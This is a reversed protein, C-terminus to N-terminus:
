IRINLPKTALPQAARIRGAITMVTGALGALAQFATVADRGLQAILEAPMSIGMTAFLAPAVTSAATLLAGWITLSNGWWKADDAPPQSSPVSAQPPSAPLQPQDLDSAMAPEKISPSVPTPNQPEIVLRLAAALTADTRALWGRGFRWFHSLSRYRARRLDAYRPLVIAPSQATASALTIPGVEGDVTVSLASQLLKAAARLGMNVATDFHFLAIAPPLENCRAPRWYRELYIRRVLTDPIRKLEAKLDGVTAATVERGTERAFEGITIGKNTAGGPDFPDDTWGGEHRLVLALATEFGSDPVPAVPTPKSAIQRDPAQETEVAPWRLAILRGRDYAEVTVANSQNGGLLIITAPTIALLIGVHGLAPDSGRSLVAIAGCRPPECPRGWRSYSRAMLSGTGAIGSRKLMAGVFAACWATEDDTIEAHGADRFYAAIRANTGPGAIERQGFEGWARTLWAPEMM